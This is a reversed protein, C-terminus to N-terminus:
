RQSKSKIVFAGLHASSQTTSLTGFSYVKELKKLFLIMRDMLLVLSNNLARLSVPRCPVQRPGTPYIAELVPLMTQLRGALDWLVM